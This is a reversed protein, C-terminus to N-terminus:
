IGRVSRPATVPKGNNLQQGCAHLATNFHLKCSVKIIRAMIFTGFSHGVFSARSYGLGHLAGVTAAVIDDFDPARQCLRLSVHRVQMACSSPVHPSWGAYLM